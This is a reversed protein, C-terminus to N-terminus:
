KSAVGKAVKYVGYFGWAVLLFGISAIINHVIIHWKDSLFPMLEVGFHHLEEVLVNLGIVLLGIAVMKMGAGLGEAFMGAAKFGIFLATGLAFIIIVIELVHFGAAVGNGHVGEEAVILPMALVLGFIVLMLIRKNM